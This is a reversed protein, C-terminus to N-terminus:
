APPTAAVQGRRPMGDPHPVNLHRMVSGDGYLRVFEKFDEPLEAGAWKEIEAWAEPRPPRLWPEAQMLDRLVVQPLASM